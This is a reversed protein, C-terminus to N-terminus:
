NPKLVGLVVQVIGNTAVIDKGYIPAQSVPNSPSTVV